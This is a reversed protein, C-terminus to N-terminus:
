QGTNRPACRGGVTQSHENRRKASQGGGKIRSVRRVHALAVDLGMRPVVSLLDMAADYDPGEMGAFPDGPPQDGPGAHDRNNPAADLVPLLVAGRQDLDVAAADPEAAARLAARLPRAREVKKRDDLPDGECCAGVPPVFDRLDAGWNTLTPRKTTTVAGTGCMERYPALFARLRHVEPYVRGTGDAAAVSARGIATLLNELPGRMEDAAIAAYQAPRLTDLHDFAPPKLHAPADGQELRIIEEETLKTVGLLAHLGKSWRLQSRGRFAAVYQLWLRGAREDGEETFDALLQMPTRGARKGMKVGSKTMEEEIGWGKGGERSPERGMKTVYDSLKGADATLKFAHLRAADWDNCPIGAKRISYLWRERMAAEFVRLRDGGEQLPADFLTVEHVHVHFGEAGHTVELARITGVIGLAKYLDQGARGASFKGRALALGGYHPSHKDQSGMVEQPSQAAYHPVTYTALGVGLGLARARDLGAALDSRQRESIIAGCVPCCWLLGCHQLNKVGGRGADPYYGVPIEDKGHQVCRACGGLAKAAGELLPDAKAGQKLLNRAGAQLAYKRVIAQRQRDMPSQVEPLTNLSCPLMPPSTFDGIPGLAAAVRQARNAAALGPGGGALVSPQPLGRDAPLAQVLPDPAPGRGTLKGTAAHERNAVRQAKYFSWRARLQDREQESLGLLVDPPLPM